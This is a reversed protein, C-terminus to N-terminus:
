ELNQINIKESKLKELRIAIREHLGHEIEELSTLIEEDNSILNGIGVLLDFHSEGDPKLEHCMKQFYEEVDNETNGKTLKFIRIQELHHWFKELFIYLVNIGYVPSKWKDYLEENKKHVFIKEEYTRYSYHFLLKRVSPAIMHWMSQHKSPIVLSVKGFADLLDPSTQPFILLKQAVNETIVFRIHSRTVIRFSSMFLLFNAWAKNLENQIDSNTNNPILVKPSLLVEEIYNVVIENYRSDTDLDEPSFAFGRGRMWDLYRTILEPLGETMGVLRKAIELYDLFGGTERKTRAANSVTKTVIDHSFTTLELPAFSPKPIQGKFSIVESRGAAVLAIRGGIPFLRKQLEGLFLRLKQSVQNSMLNANDLLLLWYRNSSGIQYAVELCMEDVKNIDKIHDIQFNLSKLLKQIDSREDICIQFDIYQVLWKMENTLILEKHLRHLLWTKGMQPPAVVQFFHKGDPNELNTRLQFLETERNQFPLWGRRSKIDSIPTNLVKVLTNDVFGILKKDGVDNVLDIHGYRREFVLESTSINNTVLIYVKYQEGKSKAELEMNVAIEFEAKCWESKQYNTSLIVLFIKSDLFAKTINDIIVGNKKDPDEFFYSTIGRKALIDVIKKANGGDEEAYSIFVDTM